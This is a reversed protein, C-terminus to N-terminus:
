PQGRSDQRVGILGYGAVDCWPSEGGPDRRGEGRNAIRCLKDLVRVVLLADRFAGPPIGDPYLTSLLAASKGASDGYARSKEAVLEGLRSGMTPYDTPEM